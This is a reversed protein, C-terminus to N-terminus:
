NSNFLTRVKQLLELRNSESSFTAHSIEPRNLYQELCSNSWEMKKLFYELDHNLSALDPYPNSQLVKLADKRSIQGSLILSSLHIKRKDVGFKKPLIFGQYFRTFISEYHKYPYRRFGYSAELMRLADEKVYSTYDLFHVWKINRFMRAALRGFTGLSPFSSIKVKKSSAISYINQKDCKYWSWNDPMRMGETSLNTGGLIYEIRYKSALNYNVALMANDYLLEVDIVDSDFFAQMLAKYEAWDIVYTYLDVNLKNILNYINSQALESNWGNDMHVALPRLGLQKALVLTWASDVGGSIGVICDYKKRLGRSKIKSVLENLLLSKDAIHNNPQNNRFELETCFNCVGNSDFYIGLASRDMVCRTCIQSSGISYAM